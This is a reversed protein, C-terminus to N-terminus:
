GGTFVKNKGRILSDSVNQIDVIRYDLGLAHVQIAGGVVSCDVWGRGLTCRDKCFKKVRIKSTWSETIYVWHMSKSALVSM